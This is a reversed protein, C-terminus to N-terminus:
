GQRMQSFTKFLHCNGGKRIQRTKRLYFKQPIHSTSITNSGNDEFVSTKNRLSRKTTHISLYLAHTHIHVPVKQQRTNKCQHRFHLSQNFEYNNIRQNLTVRQYRRYPMPPGATLRVNCVVGGPIPVAKEQSFLPVHLNHM